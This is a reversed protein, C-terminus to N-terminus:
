YKCPLKSIDNIIRIPNGAVVKNPPVDKTVVSGAGVLVNNGIIVGPLLTSNAGIKAGKGVIPGKLTEKVNRSQPYKANTLTVNPGLWCNKKLTSFEPVFVQSHVRVGNEINVHHEIISGSGISVDNGIINNERIMVLHGTQFNSGVVNGEYIVTHSRIVANDGIITKCDQQKYGRVPEGIIVFEGITCNNGLIVNSHIKATNSICSL